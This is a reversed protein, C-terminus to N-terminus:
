PTEKRGKSSGPKGSTMPRQFLVLSARKFSSWTALPWPTHKQSHQTSWLVRLSSVSPSGDPSAYTVPSVTTLLPPANLAASQPFAPRSGRRPADGDPALRTLSSWLAWRPLAWRTPLNLHSWLAWRAQAPLLPRVQAIGRPYATSQRYGPPGGEKM